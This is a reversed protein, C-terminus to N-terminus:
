DILDLVWEQLASENNFDGEFIEKPIFENGINSVPQVRLQVSIQFIFDKSPSSISRKKSYFGQIGTPSGLQKVKPIQLMERVFMWCNSTCFNDTLVYVRATVKDQHQNTFLNKDEDYVSWQKEFFLAQKSILKVYEKIENRGHHKKFEPLNGKSVRIKRIWSKNYDHKDGLSKLYQDGWLNRLVTRQWFSSGEKNGRIDFVIFDKNRYSYLSTLIKQFIKQQKLSPAFTPIRIWIGKNDALEHVHFNGLLPKRIKNASQLATNTLETYKLTIHKDKGKHKVTIKKPIPIFNNGDVVLMYISAIKKAIETKAKAYFPLLYQRYYEYATIDDVSILEDGVEIDELYSINHNRYIILYKNGIKASLLGPYLEKPLELKDRVVGISNDHFGNIYYKMLYYCDNKDNIYNILDKSNQYGEELWNLFKVDQSNAFGASNQRFTVYLFDLDTRCRKQYKNYDSTEKKLDDKAIAVNNIAMIFLNFLFIFKVLKM